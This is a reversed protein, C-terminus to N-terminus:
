SSAVQIQAMLLLTADHIVDLEHVLRQGFSPECECVVVHRNASDDNDVTLDHSSRVVFALKPAVGRRM